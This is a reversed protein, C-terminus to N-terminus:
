VGHYTTYFSSFDNDIIFNTFSVTVSIELGEVFHMWGIPLFLIEGPGLICELIQAEGPRALPRPPAIRGDIRSYVHYYNEMLPLDWSPALKVRKRGIVQAM